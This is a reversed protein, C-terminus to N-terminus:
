GLHYCPIGALSDASGIKEIGKPPYGRLATDYGM